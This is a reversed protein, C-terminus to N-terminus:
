RRDSRRAAFPTIRPNSALAQATPTASHDDTHMTAGTAVQGRAVRSHEIDRQCRHRPNVSGTSAAVAAAADAWFAEGALTGVNASGPIEGSWLSIANEDPPSIQVTGDVPPTALSRTECGAWSDRGSYEGSPFRRANMEVRVPPPSM